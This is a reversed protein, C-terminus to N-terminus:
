SKRRGVFLLVSVPANLWVRSQVVHDFVYDADVAPAASGAYAQRAEVALFQRLSLAARGAQSQADFPGPSGHRMGDGQGEAGGAQFLRRQLAHGDAQAQGAHVVLLPGGAEDFVIGAIGKHCEFGIGQGGQQARMRALRAGDNGDARAAHAFHQVRVAAAM